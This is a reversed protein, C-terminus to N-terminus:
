DRETHCFVSGHRAEALYRGRELREPTAEFVRDTLDRTRPGFVLARWGVVARVGAALALLVLALLSLVLRRGRAGRRARQVGRDRASKTQVRQAWFICTIALGADDM